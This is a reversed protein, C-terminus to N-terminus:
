FGRPVAVSHRCLTGICIPALLRFLLIITLCLGDVAAERFKHQYQPLEVVRELWASVHAMTWSAVPLEFFLQSSTDPDQRLVLTDPGASPKVSDIGGLEQLTKRIFTRDKRACVVPFDGYGALMRASAASPTVYSSDMDSVIVLMIFEKCGESIAKLLTVQEAPVVGDTSSAAAASLKGAGANIPGRGAAIASQVIAGSTDYFGAVSAESQKHQVVVACGTFVQGSKALLAAAVRYRGEGPPVPGSLSVATASDSYELAARAADILEEVSPIGVFPAKVHETLQVKTEAINSKMAYLSTPDTLLQSKSTM